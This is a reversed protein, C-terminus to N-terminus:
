IKLFHKTVINFVDKVPESITEVGKDFVVKWIGQTRIDLTLLVKIFLLIGRLYQKKCFCINARMALNVQKIMYHQHASLQDTIILESRKAYEEALEIKGLRSYAYSLSAFGDFRHITEYKSSIDLAKHIYKIAVEYERKDRYINALHFLSVAMILDNRMERGIQLATQLSDLALDYKRLTTYAIALTELANVERAKNGVLKTLSLAQTIYDITLKTKGRNLYYVGLGNLAYSEIELDGIEQAIELQRERSLLSKKLHGGSPLMEILCHTSISLM